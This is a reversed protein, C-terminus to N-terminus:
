EFDSMLEILEEAEKKKMKQIICGAHVLAYDGIEIPVLGIYADVRNGSFDITAKGGNIAVVKGPTAVCM